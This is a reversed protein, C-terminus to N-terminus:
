VKCKVCYAKKEMLKEMDQGCLAVWSDQGLAETHKEPQMRM